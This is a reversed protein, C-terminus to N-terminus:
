DWGRREAREFALRKRLDAGRLAAYEDPYYFRLRRLAGAYLGQLASAEIQMYNPSRNRLGHRFKRSYEPPAPRLQTRLDALLSARLGDADVGAWDARVKAALAPTEVPSNVHVRATMQYHAAILYRNVIQGVLVFCVDGVRITYPEDFVPPSLCTAGVCAPEEVFAWPLSYVHFAHARPDYEETFFQGGLHSVNPDQKEGIKLGTLRPDAIHRVLAPLAQPGLRVLTRMAEPICDPRPAKLHLQPEPDDLVAWFDTYPQYEYLGPGNCDIQALQDILQDPPPAAQASAQPTFAFWFAGIAIFIVLYKM